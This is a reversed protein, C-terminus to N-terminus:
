LICEPILKYRYIVDDAKKEYFSILNQTAYKGKEETLGDRISELKRIMAKYISEEEGILIAGMKEFVHSSHSNKSSIRVLYYEHKCRKHENEVLLRVAKSAIGQNRYEELLDIGIEPTEHTPNQLVITGCFIDDENFIVYTEDKGDLVQEWLMDAIKRNDYYVQSDAVQRRLIEYNNRDRETIRSLKITKAARQIPEM